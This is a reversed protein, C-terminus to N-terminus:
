HRGDAACPSAAPAITGAPLGASRRLADPLLVFGAAVVVAVALWPFLRTWKARRREARRAARSGEPPPSKRM